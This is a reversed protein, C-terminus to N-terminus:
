ARKGVRECAAVFEDVSDFCFRDGKLTAGTPQFRWPKFHRFKRLRSLHRNTVQVEALNGPVGAPRLPHPARRIVLVRVLKPRLRRNALVALRHVGDVVVFGEQTDAVLPPLVLRYNREGRYRLLSPEFLRSKRRRMLRVLREARRYRQAEAIRSLPQLKRLPVTEVSVSVTAYSKSISRISAVLFADFARPDVIEAVSILESRRWSLRPARSGGIRRSPAM